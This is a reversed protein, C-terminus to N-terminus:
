KDGPKEKTKQVDKGEAGSAGNHNWWGKGKGKPRDGKKGKGKGEQRWDEQGYGKGRGAKGKGPSVWWTQNVNNVKDQIKAQRRARLIVAPGAASTEEYPLVELHKAATWNGDIASQHIAMFRSSLLDGLSALQGGRLMDLANALLHLERM